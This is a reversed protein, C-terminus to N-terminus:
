QLIFIKDGPIKIGVFRFVSLEQPPLELKFYLRITKLYTVHLPPHHSSEDDGANKLLHINEQSENITDTLVLCSIKRNRM